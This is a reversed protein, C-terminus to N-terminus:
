TKDHYPWTNIKGASYFEKYTMKKSKSSSTSDTDLHSKWRENFHARKDKPFYAGHWLCKMMYDVTSLVQGIRTDLYAPPLKVTSTQDCNAEMNVKPTQNLIYIGYILERIIQHIERYDLPKVGEEEPILIICSSSNLPNLDSILGKPKERENKFDDTSLYWNTQLHKILENRDNRDFKNFFSVAERKFEQLLVEENEQSDNQQSMDRQKTRCFLLSYTQNFNMFYCINKEISVVIIQTKSNQWLPM